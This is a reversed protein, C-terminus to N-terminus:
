TKKKSYFYNASANPYKKDIDKVLNSNILTKYTEKNWRESKICKIGFNTNNVNNVSYVKM